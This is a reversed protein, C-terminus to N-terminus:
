SSKKSNTGGHSLVGKMHKLEESSILDVIARAKPHSYNYYEAIVDVKEDKETKAWKTFRKRKPIVFRYFDFQVQAPLFAFRNMENAYLVTEPFQSLGRNVIFANYGDVVSLEPDIQKSNIANLFDFPSSKGM